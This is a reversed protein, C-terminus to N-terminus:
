HHGGGNGGHHGGEGFSQGSEHGAGAGHEGVYRAVDAYTFDGGGASGGGNFYADGLEHRIARFTPDDPLAAADCFIAQAYPCFEASLKARQISAEVQKATYPGRHGYDEFLQKPLSKLYRRVASRKRSAYFWRSLPSSSTSPPTLSMM